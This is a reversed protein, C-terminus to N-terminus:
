GPEEFLDRDSDFAPRLQDFWTARPDLEAFFPRGVRAPDRAQLYDLVLVDKGAVSAPGLIRVKGPTASM